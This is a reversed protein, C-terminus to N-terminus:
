RDLAIMRVFARPHRACDYLQGGTEAWFPMPDDSDRVADVLAGRRSRMWLSWRAVESAPMTGALRQAGVLLRVGLSNCFARPTEADHVSSLLRGVEGQEGMAALYALLPLPLGRAIDFALQNYFRPNMDILLQREGVRVLELEFVGFYDLRELLRATRASVEPTVTAGEFCLGVGMRRPRQLVKVAGFLPSIRGEVDRFGTVSEIAQIAEVYYRQLLPRGLDPSRTTVPPGYPHDRIFGDYQARLSAADGAAVVGKSHTRMFLQTRPKIMLPGDATGVIRDFDAPSEPAWTEPVEFGASSAADLLTKKDLVRTMTPLRPQYLRLRGSLEDEHAALVYAVEDSTPYVVHEGERAALDKLWEVFSEVRTVPPCVHARTVYRSFCTSAVRSPDAVVVPVGARGLARAAALTGYFGADFLLIPPRRASV